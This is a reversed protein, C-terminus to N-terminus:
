DPPLDDFDDSDPGEASIPDPNPPELSSNEASPPVAESVVAPAAPTTGDPGPKSTGAVVPEPAVTDATEVPREALHELAVRANEKQKRFLARIEVMRDEELYRGHQLEIIPAQQPNQGSWHPFIPVSMPSYTGHFIFCTAGADMQETAFQTAEDKETFPFVGAPQDYDSPLAAVWFQPQQTVVLEFLQEPTTFNEGPIFGFGKPKPM